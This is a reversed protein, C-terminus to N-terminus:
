SPLSTSSNSHISVQSVERAPYTGTVFRVVGALYGGYWAGQGAGVVLAIKDQLRM